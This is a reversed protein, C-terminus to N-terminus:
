LKPFLTRSRAKWMMPLTELSTLFEENKYGDVATVPPALLLQSCLRYTYNAKPIQISRLIAYRVNESLDKSSYYGLLNDLRQDFDSGTAVAPFGNVTNQPPNQLSASTTTAGSRATLSSASTLTSTPTQNKSSFDGWEIRMGECVDKMDVKECDMVFSQYNDDFSIKSVLFFTNQGDSSCTPAATIAVLDENTSWVAKAHQYATPNTFTGSIYTSGSCTINALYMSHDLVVVPYHHSLAMRVAFSEGVASNSAARYWHESNKAPTLHASKSYDIHPPLVPTCVAHKASDSATARKEERQSGRWTGKHSQLAANRRVTNFTELGLPNDLLPSAVTTSMCTAWFLLHVFSTLLIM